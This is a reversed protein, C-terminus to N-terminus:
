TVKDPEPRGNVRERYGAADERVSSNWSEWSLLHGWIFHCNHGPAECLTILNADDLEREPWRWFPQIHHVALNKRAWCVQCAAERQLHAARVHSWHPSRPAAGMPAHDPLFLDGGILWSFFRKLM